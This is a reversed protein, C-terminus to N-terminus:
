RGRRIREPAELVDQGEDGFLGRVGREPQEGHRRHQGAFPLELEDIQVDRPQPIGVDIAGVVDQDRPHDDFRFRASLDHRAALRAAPGHDGPPRQEGGSVLRKGLDLVPRKIPGTM